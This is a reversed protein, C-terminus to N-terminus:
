AFLILLEPHLSENRGPVSRAVNRCSLQANQRCDLFIAAHKAPIFWGRLLDRIAPQFNLAIAMHSIKFVSQSALHQLEDM